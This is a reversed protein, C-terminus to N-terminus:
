FSLCRSRRIGLESESITCNSCSQNQITNPLITFHLNNSTERREGEARVHWMEWATQPEFDFWLFTTTPVRRCPSATKGFSFVSYIILGGCRASAPISLIFLKNVSAISCILRSLYNFFSFHAANGSSFKDQPSCSQPGSCVPLMWPEVLNMRSSRGNDAGPNRLFYM